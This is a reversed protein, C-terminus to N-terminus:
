ADGGGDNCGADITQILRRGTVVSREGGDAALAAAHETRLDATGECIPASSMPLGAGFCGSVILLPTARM